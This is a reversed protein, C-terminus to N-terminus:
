DFIEKLLHTYNSYDFLKSSDCNAQMESKKTKDLKLISLLQTKISEISNIEVFYGNEGKVLFENLDSTRNTIVPTGCSVSEVFKTPFGAKTVRTEHRLFVSFDAMRIYKLSDIHTLQGLFIIQKYNDEIIKKHAEYDALYKEKTIGIIYFLYNSVENLESLSQIILNLNDKNNGPSGAYVFRIVDDNYKSVPLNWKDESLDVLPPIRIVNRCKDYYKELFYSIVILGDIHKQIVKMRLFTDIGKIIKFTIAAGKTSYWETCDALIKINNKRCFLKIRLFAIAQYDYCIVAKINSYNKTVEVFTKISSLYNIWQTNTNPYPVFWCDFEQIVKRTDAVASYYSLNKDIGIFVVKYGNKRLIKGNSLVRHAAANKDPLEFGGIYIITGKKM